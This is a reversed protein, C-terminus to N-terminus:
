VQLYHLCTSTRHCHLKMVAKASLPILHHFGYFGRSNIHKALQGRAGTWLMNRWRIDFIMWVTAGFGGEIWPVSLWHGKLHFCLHFTTASCVRWRNGDQRWWAKLSVAFSLAGFVNRIEPGIKNTKSVDIFFCLCRVSRDQGEAYVWCGGQSEQRSRLLDWWRASAKLIVSWACFMANSYRPIYIYIYIYISIQLHYIRDHQRCVICSAIAYDQESPKPVWFHM